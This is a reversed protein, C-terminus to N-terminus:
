FGGGSAEQCKKGKMANSKMQVGARLLDRLVEEPVFGEWAGAAALDRLVRGTMHQEGKLDWCLDVKAKTKWSSQKGM